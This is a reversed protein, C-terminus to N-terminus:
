PIFTTRTHKEKLGPSIQEEFENCFGFQTQFWLVLTTEWMKFDTTQEAPSSLFYTMKATKPLFVTILLLKRELMNETVSCKKSMYWVSDTQKISYFFVCLPCCSIILSLREAKSLFIIQDPLIEFPPMESSFDMRISHQATIRWLIFSSVYWFVLKHGTVFHTQLQQKLLVTLTQLHGRYCTTDSCHVNAKSMCDSVWCASWCM